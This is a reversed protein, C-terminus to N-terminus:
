HKIWYGSKGCNPCAVTNNPSANYFGSMLMPTMEGFGGYTALEITNTFKEIGTMDYGCHGCEFQYM